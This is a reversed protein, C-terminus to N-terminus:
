PKRAIGITDRGVMYSEVCDLGAIEGLLFKMGDPLIRWCDVPYRHEEWLQPGIICVLGGSKTVRAIERIWAHMDQVHEIAQGSIVVDYTDNEIPYHYPSPAVIDVNPGATIDLGTYKCHLFLHKYSGNVNYSGIDLVNVGMANPLYRVVFEKMLNVSSPHM